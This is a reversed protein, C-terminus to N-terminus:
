FDHYTNGLETKLGITFLTSNQNDIDSSSSRAHLGIEFKLNTPPYLLYAVRLGGSIITTQVGQATFNDFEKQRPTTYDLFINGGWNSGSSDIGAIGYMFSGEISIPGTNYRLFSTTEYFNAGLPHALAQNFHAYNQIRLGHSYTYPRVRNYEILGSLGDIGFLRWTKLGLQFGQKNAWWGDRARIHVLFFEDLVVQGYLLMSKSIKASINTGIIANDSSGVSFEVPRYFIIPNLYNVDYGRVGSSDEGAWIISEFLSINLWKSVNWSLYHFTAYKRQYNSSKGGSGIVENMATFLNVYKIKWITTNIKFFPYNNAVDSLLLSRYGSGFFNKGQGAQFNFYPSPSYSIYGDFKSFAYGQQTQHAYGMGPVVENLKITTDVYNVFGRNATNFTGVVALKKKVILKTTIGLGTRTYGDRSVFDQDYGLQVLPYFDLSSFEIKSTSDGKSGRMFKPRAAYLISDLDVHATVESKLFPRISSHFGSSMLDPHTEFLARYGRNQSLVSSQGFGLAASTIILGMVHFFSAVQKWKYIAVM